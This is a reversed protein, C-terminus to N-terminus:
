GAVNLAGRIVTPISSPESVLDRFGAAFPKLSGTAMWVQERMDEFLCDGLYVYHELDLVLVGESISYRSLSRIPGFRFQVQFLSFLFGDHDM